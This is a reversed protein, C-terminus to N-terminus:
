RIGSWAQLATSFGGGISYKAIPVPGLGQVLLGEDHPGRENMPQSGGGHEM